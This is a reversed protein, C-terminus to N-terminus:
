FAHLEQALVCLADSWNLEGSRDAFKFAKLRLKWLVDLRAAEVLASFKGYSQSLQGL